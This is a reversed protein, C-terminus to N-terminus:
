KKHEIMAYANHQHISEYNTCEIRFERIREEALLTEALNRVADEVFRPKDYASETVAKEDDRKLLTYLPSSAADEAWEVIEEIWVMQRGGITIDIVGRQNHAGRESIEKSCPCLNMVPVSVGLHFKYSDNLDGVFRARYEMLSIAESVPAHKEIFYPFELKIHTSRAEFRRRMESLLRALQAYNVNGRYKYLVEVFRSMHTGRYHSPLDVFMDVTAITNQWGEARDLVKIPLRVRQVGVKNIQIPSDPQDMAIDNLHEAM